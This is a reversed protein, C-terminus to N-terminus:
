EPPKVNTRFAPRKAAKPEGELKKPAPEEAPAEAIPAPKRPAPPLPPPVTPAPKPSTHEAVAPKPAEVKPAEVKPIEAKPLEVKPAVAVPPPPPTAVIPAAPKEAVPEPAKPVPTDTSAVKPEVEIKPAQPAPEPPPTNVAVNPKAATGGARRPAIGALSQVLFLHEQTQPYAEKSLKLITPDASQRGLDYTAAMRGDIEIFLDLLVKERKAGNLKELKEALRKQTPSEKPNNINRMEAVTGVVASNTALNKLLETGLGQLGPNESKAAEGGLYELAKGLDLANAIFVLDRGGVESSIIEPAKASGSPKAPAAAAPAAPAASKPKQAWSSFPLALALIPLVRSQM